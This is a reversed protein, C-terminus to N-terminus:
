PNKALNSVREFKVPDFVDLRTLWKEVPQQSNFIHLEVSGIGGTREHQDVGNRAASPQTILHPVLDFRDALLFANAFDVDLLQLRPRHGRRCWVGNEMCSAPAQNVDARGSRERAG